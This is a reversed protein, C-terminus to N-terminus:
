HVHRPGPTGYRAEPWDEQLLPSLRTSQRQPRQERLRTCAASLYMRTTHSAMHMETNSTPSSGAPVSAAGGVNKKMVALTTM